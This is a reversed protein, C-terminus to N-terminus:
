KFRGRSIENLNSKFVNQQKKTEELKMEDSQIKKLLEIDNNFDYFAKKATDNKLYYTLYNTNIEYTLEIFKM